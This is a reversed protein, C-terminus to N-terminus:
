SHNRLDLHDSFTKSKMIMKVLKLPGYNRIKKLLIIKSRNLKKKTLLQIGDINYYNLNFNQALYIFTKASYFTIHQGHDFGYYWWKLDPLDAPLLETSLAISDSLVLMKEIESNPNELHEFVEFATLLEFKINTELNYEFGNAM